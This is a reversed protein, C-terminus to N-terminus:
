FRIEHYGTAVFQIQPVEWTALRVVSVPYPMKGNCPLVVLYAVALMLALLGEGQKWAEEVQKVLSKPSDQNGVLSMTLVNGSATLTSNKGWLLWGLYLGM